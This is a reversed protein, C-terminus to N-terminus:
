QKIWEGNVVKGALQSDASALVRGPMGIFVIDGDVTTAESLYLSPTHYHASIEVKKLQSATAKIHDSNAKITGLIQTQNIELTGNIKVQNLVKVHDLFGQGTICLTGMTTQKATLIGKIQCNHNITSTNLNVLGHGNYHDLTASECYLQGNEKKCPNNESAFLSSTFLLLYLIPPLTKM